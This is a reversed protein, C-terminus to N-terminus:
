LDVSDIDMYDYNKTKEALLQFSLLDHSRNLEATAQQLLSEHQVPFPQSMHMKGHGPETWMITEWHMVFRENANVGHDTIVVGESGSFKGGKGIRLRKGTLDKLKRSGHPGQSKAFSKARNGTLYSSALQLM